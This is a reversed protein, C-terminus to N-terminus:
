QLLSRKALYRRVLEGEGAEHLMELDSVNSFVAILFEFCEDYTRLELVRGIRLILEHLDDRVPPTLRHPFQVLPLTRAKVKGTVYRALTSEQGDAKIQEPTRGQEHQYRIAILKRKVSIKGRGALQALRKAAADVQKASIGLALDVVADWQMRSGDVFAGARAVLDVEDGTELLPPL